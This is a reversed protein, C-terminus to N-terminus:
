ELVNKIQNLFLIRQEINTSQKFNISNFNNRNLITLGDIKSSQFEIQYDNFPFDIFEVNNLNSYKISITDTLSELSSKKLYKNENFELVKKISYVLFSSFAKKNELVYSDLINNEILNVRRFSTKEKSSFDNFTIISINCNFQSLGPHKKIVDSVQSTTKDKNFNEIYKKNNICKTIEKISSRNKIKLSKIIAEKIKM